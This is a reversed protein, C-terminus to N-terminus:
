HESRMAEVVAENWFAYGEKSLHLGDSVFLEKRPRGDGGLMPAWIDVFTHREDEGCDAAILDNARKMEAAKDWRSLSPKIAVYLLRCEPLAADLKAAFARFDAHVREATKGAAVDNDGAYLVVAAPKHKAVLLDFYHVSDCLESGGFGRNLASWEPFSEGLKWLRISSSGVFVVGGPESPAAEDAAAFRAM